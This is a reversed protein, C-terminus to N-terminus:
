HFLKRRVTLFLGIFVLFTIPSLSGFFGSKKKSSCSQGTQTPCNDVADYIGDDDSDLNTPTGSVDVALMELDSYYNIRPQIDTALTPSVPDSSTATEQWELVTLRDESASIGVWHRVQYNYCDSENIECSADFGASNARSELALEDEDASWYLNTNSDTSSLNTWHLGRNSSTLTFGFANAAKLEGSSYDYYYPNTTAFSSILFKDSIFSDFANTDEVTALAGFTTLTTSGNEATALVGNIGEFKSLVITTGDLLSIVLKGSSVTWTFSSNALRLNGTGDNNFSAIDDNIGILTNSSMHSAFPGAINGTFEASNFAEANLSALISVSNRIPLNSISIADATASGLLIARYASDNIQYDASEQVIYEQRGAEQKVLFWNASSKTINIEIPIDGETAILSDVETQSSLGLDVLESILFHSAMPQVSAAYTLIVTGESLVWTFTTHSHNDSYTGSGDSAFTHSAGNMFETALDSDSLQSKVLSILTTNNSISTVPIATSITPDSLDLDLSDETGDGDSDAAYSNAAILFFSSAILLVAGVLYRKVTKLELSM